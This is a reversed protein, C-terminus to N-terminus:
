SDELVAAEQELATVREDVDTNAAGFEDVDGFLLLQLAYLRLAEPTRELALWLELVRQRYGALLYYGDDLAIIGRLIAVDTCIALQENFRQLLAPYAKYREQTTPKQRILILERTIALLDDPIIYM